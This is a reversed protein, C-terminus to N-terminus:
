RPQPAPPAPRPQLGKVDPVQPPAAVCLWPGGKTRIALKQPPKCEKVEFMGEASGTCGSSGKEGGVLLSYSGPKSFTHKYVEKTHQGGTPLPVFINNVLTNGYHLWLDCGPAITDSMFVSFRTEVGTYTPNQSVFVAGIQNNLAVAPLPVLGISCTLALSLILRRM